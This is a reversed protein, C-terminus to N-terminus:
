EVMWIKKSKALSENYSLVFDWFKDAPLPKSYKFGQVEDCSEEKLLDEHDKMEVGEAIVKLDLSHGLNIIARIILRDNLNLLSARVFSQDIKLRDIPFQRLYSLSSYGTGFDDVALEVGIQHLQDLIDIAKQADEIFISETLELELWKAELKTEALVDEVLNVIDSRHFQIGSINVAV